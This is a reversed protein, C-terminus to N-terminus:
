CSERTEVQCIAAAPSANTAAGSCDLAQLRLAVDLEAICERFSCGILIEATRIRSNVARRGVNLAHAASTANCESGIYTRLTQRLSAGGDRRSRLPALYRQELSAVLTSNAVTAALLRNEEYRALHDPRRLAIRMADRAQYHTLRWGELGQAPEGVAVALGLDPSHELDGATFRRQAGLWVYTNADLAASLLEGVHRQKLRRLFEATGAGTVILGLHWAGYIEYELEALGVPDTVAGALLSQM